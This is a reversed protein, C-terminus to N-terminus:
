VTLTLSPFPRPFPELVVDLFHNSCHISSARLIANLLQIEYSSEGVQSGFMRGQCGAVNAHYHGIIFFPHHEFSLFTIISVQNEDVPRVGAVVVAKMLLPIWVVDARFFDEDAISRRPLPLVKRVLVLGDM